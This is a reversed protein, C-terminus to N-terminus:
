LHFDSLPQFPNNGEEELWFVTVAELLSTVPVIERIARIRTMTVMSGGTDWLKHWYHGPLLGTHTGVNTATVVRLGKHRQCGGWGGEATQELDMLPTRSQMYMIDRSTNCVLFHKLWGHQLQCCLNNSSLSIAIDFSLRSCSQTFCFPSSTWLDNECHTLSDIWCHSFIWNFILTEHKRYFNWDRIPGACRQHHFLPLLVQPLQLFALGPM